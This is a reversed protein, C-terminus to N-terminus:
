KEQEYKGLVEIAKELQEDKETKEDDEIIVEPTLGTGNIWLNNALLWKATTVHLGAGDPLDQTEQVSGKGFTQEGVLQGRGAAALSGALIEASSATGKNVLVVLPVSLLKGRRNVSYTQTVGEYDEQKVVVGSSLFESAVYVAGTLFGGANNRVDLVVGKTKGSSTALFGDVEAVAQDWQVNTQDGFRGLRLYVAEKEPHWAVSKLIIAERRVALAVPKMGGPHLIELNVVTGKPGRIKAVTEQLTWGATEQGDVKLINDGAKLGAREAPSGPLPSMVVVKKDKIGLQAGIGEFRGNLEEKVERNKEPPLFVTYPDGIAAVMGAIAGYVMRSAELKNKDVYKKRVEDWVRWFLSLDAATASTYETRIEPRGRSWLIEVQREGLKYGVSGAFVIPLLILVIRRLWFLRM